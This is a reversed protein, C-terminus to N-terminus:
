FIGQNNVGQWLGGLSRETMRASFPFISVSGKIKLIRFKQHIGKRNTKLNRKLHALKKAEKTLHASFPM